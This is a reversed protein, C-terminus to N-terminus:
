KVSGSVSTLQSQTCCTTLMLDNEVDSLSKNIGFVNRGSLIYEAEGVYQEKLTLVILSLHNRHIWLTDMAMLHWRARDAQVWRHCSADSPASVDEAPRAHQVVQRKTVLAPGLTGDAVLSHLCSVQLPLYLAEFPSFMKM